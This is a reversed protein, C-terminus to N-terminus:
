KKINLASLYIFYTELPILYRPRIKDGLYYVTYGVCVLGLIWDSNVKRRNLPASLLVLIYWQWDLNIYYVFFMSLVIFISRVTCSKIEFQYRPLCAFFLPLVTIKLHYAWILFWLSLCKLLLSPQRLLVIGCWMMGLAIADPGHLLALWVVMPYSSMIWVPTHKEINTSSFILLVMGLYSLFIGALQPKLPLFSMLSTMADRNYFGEYIAVIRKSGAPGIEGILGMVFFGYLWLFTFLVMPLAHKKYKHLYLSM